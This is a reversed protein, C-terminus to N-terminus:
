QKNFVVIMSPFPASDKAGGFKLRGKIFILDVGEKEYIYNHFWKTDTRAPLLAVVTCHGSRSEDFAKRVWKDTVNRGYPPNMWCVGDWTQALGDDNPSFFRECKKNDETACVDLTFQYIQNLGEFFSQPTEWLDTNSSFMLDKNM